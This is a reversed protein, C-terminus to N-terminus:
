KWDETRDPPGSAPFIKDRRAWDPQNDVRAIIGLGARNIADVIRDSENWEFTNKRTKEINRWEFRQKVWSVGAESALRLDRDTTDPNGWLFVHLAPSPSDVRGNSVLQVRPAAVELTPEAKPKAATKDGPPQTPKPTSPPSPQCGAIAIMSALGLTSLLKRM